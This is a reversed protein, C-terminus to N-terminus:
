ARERENELHKSYRVEDTYLDKRFKRIRQVGTMAKGMIKVQTTNIVCVNEDRKRLGSRM